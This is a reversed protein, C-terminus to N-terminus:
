LESREQNGQPLLPPKPRVARMAAAVAAWKLTLRRPGWCRRRRSVVSLLVSPTTKEFFSVPNALKAHHM